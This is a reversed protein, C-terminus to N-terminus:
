SGARKCATYSIRDSVSSEHFTRLCETLPRGCATQALGTAVGRDVAYAVCDAATRGTADAAHAVPGAAVSLAVLAAPVLAKIM